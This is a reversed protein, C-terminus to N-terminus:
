ELTLKNILAEQSPCIKLLDKQKALKFDRFDFGPAVTCGVFSYSDPQLVEAGFWHMAPVVFQPLEDNEFNTGVDQFSYNGEPSIMHIRLPSGGYFHWMEDQNIKHFASFSASTLLFYIGTCYNREGEIEKDLSTNPISGQSRYTEKFFGGEPHPLLDFKQIINNIETNM